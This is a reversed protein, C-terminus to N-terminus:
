TGIIWGDTKGDVTGLETGLRMGDNKGDTNGLSVEDEIGLMTAVSVDVYIGLKTGVPNGDLKGLTVGEFTGLMSADNIGLAIYLKTGVVIEIVVKKGLWIDDTKGDATGLETGLRGCDINNGNRNGLSAGDEIWLITGISVNVYMGLKTGVPNGDLKGLTMGEFTGLVSADNICLVIDLKTGVIMWLSNEEFNGDNTGLWSGINM